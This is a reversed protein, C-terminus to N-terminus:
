KQLIWFETELIHNKLVIKKLNFVEFWNHLMQSPETALENLKIAVLCNSNQTSCVSQMDHLSLDDKTGELAIIPKYKATKKSSRVGNRTQM